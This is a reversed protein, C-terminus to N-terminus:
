KIESKPSIKNMIKVKCIWCIMNRENQQLRQVDAATLAWPDFYREWVHVLFLKLFFM